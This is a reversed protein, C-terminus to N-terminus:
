GSFLTVEVRRNRARNEASDNPVIPENEARPEAVLREPALQQALASRVSEARAKSLHWNSPFRLTRIPINDTHGTILVQGDLTSLAAGLQQLLPLRDPNIRAVGSGFLGDGRLVVRTGGTVDIIDILGQEAEEAMLERLGLEKAPIVVPATVIPQRSRLENLKPINKGLSALELMVPDSRGNLGYLFASYTLLSIGAVILGLLWLPIYKALKTRQDELGQWDPSLSSEHEGRQMRILQYLEARIGDLASRGREHLRYKGEFGLSLCVYFLEILSINTAPDSKSREILQFVKEGGWGENHFTSLLTKEAWVSRGGWPTGLVVEDLLTCLTYRAALVLEAPVSAARTSQEFLQIEKVVDAFLDGPNDQQVTKRLECALGTLPTAAALLPNRDKELLLASVESSKLVEVQAGVASQDLSTQISPAASHFRGGPAPRLLTKDADGDSFPADNDQM